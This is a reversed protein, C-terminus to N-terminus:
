EAVIRISEGDDVYPAGGVVVEDDDDLGAIVTVRGDAIRGLVVRRAEARGDAAVLVRGESGRARILASVPVSLVHRLDSPSAEVEALLGSRLSGDTGDLAFEVDITGTAFDAAGAIRQVTAPYRRGGLGDVRVTAPDGVRLRLAERDALAARLLWGKSEGALTLVTQGAAVVEGAEALRAKIRGDARAVVAAFRQDVRAARLDAHAIERATAADDRAERSVLGRALVKEIRALDREAKAVAEAARAVAADTETRDLRALVQGARVFDGADVPISAVVGPVKFSLRLEDASELRGTARAVGADPAPRPAAVVVPRARPVLEAGAARARDAPFWALSLTLILVHLSRPPEM